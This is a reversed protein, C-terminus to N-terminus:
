EVKRDGSGVFTLVLNTLERGVAVLVLRDSRRGSKNLKLRIGVRGHKYPRAPALCRRLDKQKQTAHLALEGDALVARAIRPHYGGHERRVALADQEDAVLMTFWGDVRHIGLPQHFLRLYAKVFLKSRRQM